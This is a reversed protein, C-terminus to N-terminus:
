MASKETTWSVIIEVGFSRIRKLNEAPGGATGGLKGFDLYM